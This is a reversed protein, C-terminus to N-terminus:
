EEFWWSCNNAEWRILWRVFWGVQCMRDQSPLLHVRVGEMQLAQAAQWYAVSGNYVLFSWRPDSLAIDV